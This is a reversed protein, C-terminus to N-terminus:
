EVFKVYGWMEPIHMNIAGQPSWVWNDEPTEPVKHYAGNRIEHRWQVRSFNIRWVDGPNPPSPTLTHVALLSWPLAMEVSWGRDVDTPDNLTGSVHVASLMGDAHWGHWAPGGERYARVLILDFITGLANIEVEYYDRRDGDPDIFVEFDNDHYVIQDHKTLTGWVHPEEMDAAVYLYEDDWVMKMRTRFRPRPKADGEIDVFLDSWAAREWAADDLRGDVVVPDHVKPADYRKPGTSACGTLVLLMLVLLTKKM